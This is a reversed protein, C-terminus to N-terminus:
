SDSDWDWDEWGWDWGWDWNPSEDWSSNSSTFDSSSFFSNELTYSYGYYDSGMAGQQIAPGGSLLLDITGQPFLSFATQVIVSLGIAFPNIDYLAFHAAKSLFGGGFYDEMSQLGFIGHVWDNLLHRVGGIDGREYMEIANNYIAARAEEPTQYRMNGMVPDFFWGGMDHLNARGAFSQYDQRDVFGSPIKCFAESLDVMLDNGTYQYAAWPSSGRLLESMFTIPAHFPTFLHGSTDVYNVPNNRGYSYRNHSQPDGPEQVISDPSIFRGLLPDYLRAKFNFVSVEDDDEQGTFTYYADPFSPDYDFTEPSPRYTGFPFYEDKEKIAGSLDTVLWTSGLHDPHYMQTYGGQIVSAVRQRGAFLHIIWAGGRTEYLAGFYLVTQNPSVKRVRQSNGDYTFTTTAGGRTISTPKNDYNWQITTTVGSGVRQITNGNNDYDIFTVNGASRAAHPKSNYFYSYTGVDSKTSINGIRDYSYSQNYSNTGTGQATSLRNLADYTYSYTLDSLNNNTITMGETVLQKLRGTDPYYEYKTKVTGGGTKPFIKM